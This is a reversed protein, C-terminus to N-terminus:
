RGESPLVLKVIPEARWAALAADRQEKSMSKDGFRVRFLGSRPGDVIVAKKQQLLDAIQKALRTRRSASLYSPARM